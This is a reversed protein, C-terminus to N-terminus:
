RMTTDLPLGIVILLHAMKNLVSRLIIYCPHLFNGKTYFSRNHWNVCALSYVVKKTVEHHPKKMIMKSVFGRDKWDRGKPPFLNTGQDFLCKVQEEGKAITASSAIYKVRYNELAPYESCLKDIAAEYFGVMSLPGEILHLEDQVILNPPLLGNPLDIQGNRHDRSFGTERNHSAAAGFILGSKPDKPLQAFKDVTSVIISPARSYIKSMSRILQFQYVEQNLETESFVGAM